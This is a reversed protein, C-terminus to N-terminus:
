TCILKTSSVHFGADFLEKAEKKAKAKAKAEDSSAVDEIFIKKTNGCRELIMECNMVNEQIKLPIELPIEM